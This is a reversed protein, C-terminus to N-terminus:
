KTAVLPSTIAGGTTQLPEFEIPRKVHQGEASATMITLASAIAMALSTKHKM